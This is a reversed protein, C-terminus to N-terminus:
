KKRAAVVYSLAFLNPFTRALFLLIKGVIPYRQLQCNVKVSEITLGEDKLMNVLVRHNFWYVHGKKPKNNEPVKGMLMQLRAPLSSFNPVGIILRKKSVRTMEKILDQPVYLHELTDLAVVTDFSGDAFPIGGVLADAVVFEAKPVKVAALAIAEDSFDVGVARVNPLRDVVLKEFLGDGCGIDLISRDKPDILDLAAGHRFVPNQIRGKWRADEFEKYESM